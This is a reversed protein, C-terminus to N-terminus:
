IGKELLKQEMKRVIKKWEEIEGFSFKMYDESNLVKLKKIKEKGGSVSIIRYIKRAKESRKRINRRNDNIGGKMIENIIKSVASMEEYQEDDTLSNIREEFRKGFEYYIEMMKRKGSLLFGEQKRLKDYIESIGETIKGEITEEYELGKLDEESLEELLDEIEKRSQRKRNSEEYIIQENNWEGELEGSLENIEKETTGEEVINEMNEETEQTDELIEQETEELNRGEEINEQLVENRKQRKETREKQELNFDKEYSPRPRKKKDKIFNEAEERIDEIEEPAGEMKAIDDDLDNIENRLEGLEKELKEKRKLKEERKTKLKLIERLNKM